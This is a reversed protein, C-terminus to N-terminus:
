GLFFPDDPFMNTLVAHVLIHLDTVKHIPANITFDPDYGDGLEM